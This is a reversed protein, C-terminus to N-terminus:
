GLIKRIKGWENPVINPIKTAVNDKELYEYDLDQGQYEAVIQDFKEHLVTSDPDLNTILGLGSPRAPIVHIILDPRYTRLCALVKWV